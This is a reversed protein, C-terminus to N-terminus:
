ISTETHFSLPALSSIITYDNANRDILIWEYKKMRKKLQACRQNYVVASWDVVGSKKFLFALSNVDINYPILYIKCQNLLADPLKQAEQTAFVYSIGFRGHIDVSELVEQKSSPNGQAPVFRSAEDVIIYLPPIKTKVRLDIIKRLWISVVVQPLGAGERTINDFGELNLAPVFGLNIMREFDLGKKDESFMQSYQLPLFKTRLSMKQRTDFDKLNDIIDYIKELTIIDKTKIIKNYIEKCAIQQPATMEDANILTMFDLESLDNLAPTYWFNDAPLNEYGKVTKFFTPRFTMVNTATPKEGPLLLKTFKSQVPNISSKFEDKIDTLYIVGYGVKSIRDGFGRLIFTKGSNHGIVRNALIFNNYEPVFVDITKKIGIKKISKVKDTKLLM